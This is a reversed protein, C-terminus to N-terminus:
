QQKIVNKYYERLEVPISSSGFDLAGEAKPKEGYVGLYDFSSGSVREKLRDFYAGSSVENIKTGLKSFYDPESLKEKLRDFYPM